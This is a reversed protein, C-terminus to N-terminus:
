VQEKLTEPSDIVINQNVHFDEGFEIMADFYRKIALDEDDPIPGLEAGNSWLKEDWGRKVCAYVVAWALEETTSIYFNVGSDHKIETVFLLQSM